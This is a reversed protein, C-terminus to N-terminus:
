LVSKTPPQEFRAFFFTMAAMARCLIACSHNQALTIHALLQKIKLIASRALTSPLGFHPVTSAIANSASRPEM